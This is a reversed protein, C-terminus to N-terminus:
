RFSSLLRQSAMTEGILANYSSDSIWCLCSEKDIAAKISSPIFSAADRDSVAGRRCRLVKDERWILVDDSEFRFIMAVPDHWCKLDCDWLRLVGALYDDDFEMLAARVDDPIAIAIEETM